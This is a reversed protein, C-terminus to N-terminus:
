AQLTAETAVAVGAQEQKSWTATQAFKARLSALDGIKPHAAFAELWDARALNSWVERSTDLLADIGAFPRRKAMQEAWRTSGCCRLLAARAEAELLRNLTGVDAM